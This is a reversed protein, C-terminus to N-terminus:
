IGKIHLQKIEPIYNKIGEELSISPKFSLNEEASKIDAQTHTQYGEYPNPFYEIEYNTGLEKQLINAVDLFSRPISTGVNYVGSKKPSCAKINAQVVDEINIFDRLIEASGEFLRPANGNLIQHSLQLVMSSTKGKFFEKNGYVNFYRLGTILM